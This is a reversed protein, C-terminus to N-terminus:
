TYSFYIIYMKTNHVRINWRSIKKIRVEYTHVVYSYAGIIVTRMFTSYISTTHVFISGLMYIKYTKITVGCTRLSM